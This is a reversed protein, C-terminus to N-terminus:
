QSTMMVAALASQSASKVRPRISARRAAHPCFMAAM